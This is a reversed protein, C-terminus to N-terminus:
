VRASTVVPRTSHPEEGPPRGHRRRLGPLGAGQEVYQEAGRQAVVGDGAVRDFAGRRQAPGPRRAPGAGRPHRSVAMIRALDREPPLRDGALSEGMAIATMLRDSLEHITEPTTEEPMASKTRPDCAAGAPGSQARAPGPPRESRPHIPERRHTHEPRIPRRPAGSRRPGVARVSPHPHGSHTGDDFEGSFDVAESLHRAKSVIRENVTAKTVIGSIHYVM